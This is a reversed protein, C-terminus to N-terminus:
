PSPAGTDIDFAHVTTTLEPKEGPHHEVDTLWVRTPSIGFYSPGRLATEWKTRGTKVDLALLKWKGHWEDYEVLLTGYAIDALRPSGEDAVDKSALPLIRSWRVAHRSADYGAVMAVHRGGAAREGLVVADDGSALAYYPALEAVPPAGEGNQCSAVTAPQACPGTKPRAPCWSPRPGKEFAGTDAHVLTLRAVDDDEVFVLPETPSACLRGRAQVVVGGTRKGNAADFIWLAQDDHTVYTTDQVVVRGGVVVHELEMPLANDGQVRWAAGAADLRRLLKGREDFMGLALTPEGAPPAATAASAVKPKQELPIWAFPVDKGAVFAVRPPLLPPQGPDAPLPTAVHEPRRGASCAAARADDLEAGPARLAVRVLAGAREVKVFRALARCMPCVDRVGWDRLRQDVAVARREGDMQLRVSLDGDPGPALTFAATEVGDIERGLDGGLRAVLPGTAWASGLAGKDADAELPAPAAAVSAFHARAADVARGRALVYTGDPLAFLWTGHGSALPAHEVAGSRLTRGAAWEGRGDDQRYAAPSFGGQVQRAVVLMSDEELARADDKAWVDVSEARAALDAAAGAGAAHTIACRLIPGYLPDRMARALHVTVALDPADGLAQDLAKDSFSSPRRLGAAACGAAVAFM